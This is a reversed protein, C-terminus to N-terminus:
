FAMRFNFVRRCSGVFQISNCAAADDKLYSSDHSLAIDGSLSSDYVVLGFDYNFKKDLFEIFSQEKIDDVFSVGNNIWQHFDYSVSSKDSPCLDNEYFYDENVRYDQSHIMDNETEQCAFNLLVMLIEERKDNSSFVETSNNPLVKFEPIFNDKDGDIFYKELEPAVVQLAHSLHHVDVYFDSKLVSKDSKPKCVLAVSRFPILAGDELENNKNKNYLYYLLKGIGGVGVIAAPLSFLISKSLKKPSFGQRNRRLAEESSLTFAQNWDGGDITDRAEDVVINKVEDIPDRFVSESVKKLGTIDSLAGKMAEKMANVKVESGALEGEMAFVSTKTLLIPGVLVVVYLFKTMRM